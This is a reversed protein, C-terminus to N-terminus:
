IWNQLEIQPILCMINFSLNYSIIAKHPGWIYGAVTSVIGGNNQEAYGAYWSQNWISYTCVSCSHGSLVAAAVRSSSLKQKPKKPKTQAAAETNM